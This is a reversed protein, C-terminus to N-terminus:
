GRELDPLIYVTKCTCDELSGGSLDYLSLEKLILSQLLEPGNQSKQEESPKTIEDKIKSM